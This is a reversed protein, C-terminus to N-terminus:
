VSTYVGHIGICVECRWRVEERRRGEGRRERWEERWEVEGRGESREGSWKEGGKVGREM